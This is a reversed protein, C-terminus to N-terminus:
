SEAELTFMFLIAEAAEKDILCSRSIPAGDDGTDPYQYRVAGFEPLYTASRTCDDPIWKIGSM